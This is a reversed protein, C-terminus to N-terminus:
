GLSLGTKGIGIVRGLQVNALRSAFVQQHEADDGIFCPHRGHEM